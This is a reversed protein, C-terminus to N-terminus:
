KEPAGADIWDAILQLEEPSFQAAHGGATQIQVIPSDGSDGPLVAPGNRGGAMFDAYTLVSLGGVRAAGHCAACKQQLLTSVAADWTLDGAPPLAATPLGTPFPTPTQPVFAPGQRDGPLVTVIATTEANIFYYAGVVLLILLVSAVPYYIRKRKRVAEASVQREAVGAKIDALELPHEHLMQEETMTGTWMSKNLFKLHVGYFHWILIALVALIAEAGHAAKAAPVVAGPLYTTVLIPSLMIFGTIAMVATGWVFAWYEVKEEFTYRGMQPRSKAVGINYGFARGADRIDKLVPLMTPRTRKVYLRYGLHVLHFGAAVVLVYAAAHHITRTTEIGGLLSVLAESLGAQPFKQPLGTLALVTFSVLMAIHTIRQSLTFRRYTRGQAPAEDKPPVPQNESM